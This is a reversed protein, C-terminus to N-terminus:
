AHVDVLNLMMNVRRVARRYLGCASFQAIVCFFNVRTIALRCNTPRMLFAHHLLGRFRCLLVPLHMSRCIVVLFRAIRGTPRGNLCLASLKNAIVNANVVRRFNVNRFSVKDRVNFRRFTMLLRVGHQVLPRSVKLVFRRHVNIADCYVRYRDVVFAVHFLRRAVTFIM